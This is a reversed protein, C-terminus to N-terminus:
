RMDLYINYLEDNDFLRNVYYVIEISLLNEHVEHMGLEVYGVYHKREM